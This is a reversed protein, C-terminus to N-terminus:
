RAWSFLGRRRKPKVTPKLGAVNQALAMLSLAAPSGPSCEELTQGSNLSMIVPESAYPVLWYVPLQVHQSILDLSIDDSKYFRNVVLKLKERRYELQGFTELARKTNTISPLVMDCLLLIDDAVDLGVLACDDILHPMDLVVHQYIKRCAQIVGRLHWPDVVELDAVSIPGALFSLGSAHRSMFSRLLNDDLREQEQVAEALTHTVERIDLMEAASGFQLNMDLLCCADEAGLESAIGAAVNCAVTTVGLGGSASFVAIVKGERGAALGKRRLLGEVARALDERKLPYELFEDSGARMCSLLLDQTPEKSVVIIGADHQSASIAEIVKLAPDSATDVAVVVLAPEAETVRKTAERLDVVIDAALDPDYQEFNAALERCYDENPHVVLAKVEPM